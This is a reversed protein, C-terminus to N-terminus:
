LGRTCLFPYTAGDVLRCHQFFMSEFSLVKAKLKIAMRGGMAIDCAVDIITIM